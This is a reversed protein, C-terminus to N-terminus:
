TNNIYKDWIDDEKCISHENVDGAYPRRRSILLDIYITFVYKLGNKIVTSGPLSEPPVHVAEKRLYTM